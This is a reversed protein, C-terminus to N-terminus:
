LRSNLLVRLCIFPATCYRTAMAVLPRASCHHLLERKMMTLFFRSLPALTRFVSPSGGDTSIVPWLVVQLGEADKSAVGCSNFRARVRVGARAGARARARLRVNQYDICM